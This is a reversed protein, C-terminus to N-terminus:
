GPLLQESMAELAHAHMHPASITVSYGIGQPSDKYAPSDSTVFDRRDIRRMVEEINPTKLIGSQKLNDVLEKQSKGSCRWAMSHYLTSTFFLLFVSFSVLRMKHAASLVMNDSMFNIVSTNIVVM